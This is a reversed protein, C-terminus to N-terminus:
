WFSPRGADIPRSDKCSVMSPKDRYHCTIKPEALCCDWGTLCGEKLYWEGMQQFYLKKNDKNKTWSMHFLYPEVQLESQFDERVTEGKRLALDHKNKKLIRKMLDKYRHYEHGGPFPNTEGRKWVKVRLGKWSAHENLLATLAAQHSTTKAINDGSKLLMGFFYLTEPSYRVFYFGAWFLSNSPQIDGKCDAWSLSCTGTNPSYPAYRVSRAGDDQFMLDWEQLEASELYPLPDKYWVMDVDQFLVNYGATLVLHVCYVKAMMMKTFIRDGYGRAAQEPMDGFILANYYAAIGLSQCLEFTKQDTAFLFIRSTDLGKAKANCLYNHFLEVQGYNCVQVIITKSNPAHNSRDVLAQLLPKLEDLVSELHQLYEVLADYSPKVHREYDPVATYHGKADHSRSVYRLPAKPDIGGQAPLRMFKHVHYSEWQPLIALCEPVAHQPATNMLLLKVTRCNQLADGATATRVPESRPSTYLILAQEAGPRSDDLPVGVELVNNLDIRSVTTYSTFMSSLTSPFSTTQNMTSTTADSEPPRLNSSSSRLSPPCDTTISSSGSMGVLLGLYFCILGFIGHTLLSQISVLKPPKNSSSHPHRISLPMSSSRLTNTM